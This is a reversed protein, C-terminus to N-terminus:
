ALTLVEMQIPTQHQLPLAQLIPIRVLLTEALTLRLHPNIGSLTMSITSPNLSWAQDSVVTVTIM